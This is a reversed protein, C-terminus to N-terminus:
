MGRDARVGLAIADCIRDMYAHLERRLTSLETVDTLRNWEAIPSVVAIVKPTLNKSKLKITITITEIADDAM